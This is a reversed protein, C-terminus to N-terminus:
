SNLVFKLQLVWPRGVTIKTALTLNSFLHFAESVCSNSKYIPKAKKSLIGTLQQLLSWVEAPFILQTTIFRRGKVVILVSTYKKDAQRQGKM